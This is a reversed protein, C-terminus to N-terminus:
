ERDYRGEPRSRRLHNAPQQMLEMVRMSVQTIVIFLYTVLTTVVAILDGGQRAKWQLSSKLFGRGWANFGLLATANLSDDAMLAVPLFVLHTM